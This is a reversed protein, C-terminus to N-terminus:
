SEELLAPDVVIGAAHHHAREVTSDVSVLDLDAQGAGRGRRDHGGDAGSLHGCAGVDPVPRLGVVLPRVARPCGAVPQRYSVAVDGRQLSPAPGPHAVSGWRCTRSWWSGSPM